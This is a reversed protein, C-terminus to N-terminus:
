TRKALSRVRGVAGPAHLIIYLLVLGGAWASSLMFAVRDVRKDVELLNRASLVYYTKEDFSTRKIVTAFRTGSEPQWTFRVEHDNARDVEGLVGPPQLMTTPAAVSSSAINGDKDYVIGFSALSHNPDIVPGTFLGTVSTGNTIQDAWDQAQQIQPDNASQRLVQHATLYMAGMVVTLLIALPLWAKFVERTTIRKPTPM